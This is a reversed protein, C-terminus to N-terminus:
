SYMMGSFSSPSFYQRLIDPLHQIADYQFNNFGPVRMIPMLRSYNNDLSFEMERTQLLRETGVGCEGGGLFPEKKRGDESCLFISDPNFERKPPQLM